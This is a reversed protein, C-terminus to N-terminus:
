VAGGLRLRMTAAECWVQHRRGVRVGDRTGPNREARTFFAGRAPANTLSTLECEMESAYGMNQIGDRSVSVLLNKM